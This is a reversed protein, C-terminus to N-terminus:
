IGLSLNRPKRTMIKNFLSDYFFWSTFLDGFSQEQRQCREFLRSAEEESIQPEWDRFFILIFLLFVFRIQHHNIPKIFIVIPYINATNQLRKIANGSM